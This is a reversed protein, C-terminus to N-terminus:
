RATRSATGVIQFPGTGQQERVIGFQPQALLQLLHPRPGEPQDRHRSRDDARDPRDGRAYGEALEQKAVAIQRRLLRAVQQATIKRGDPWRGVAPPLHLETRRRHREMARRPRARDPGSRRVPGPGARGSLAARGAARDAARRRSRRDESHRRHGIVDTQGAQIATAAPSGFARGPVDIGRVTVRRFVPSRM